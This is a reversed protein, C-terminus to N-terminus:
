SIMYKLTFLVVIAAVIATIIFLNNQQTAMAATESNYISYDKENLNSTLYSIKNTMTNKDNVLKNYEANSLMGEKYMRMFFIFLTILLIFILVNNIKM